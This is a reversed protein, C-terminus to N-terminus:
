LFRLSLFYDKIIENEVNKEILREERGKLTIKLIEKCNRILSKLNFKKREIYYIEFSIRSYERELDVKICSSHIHSIFM